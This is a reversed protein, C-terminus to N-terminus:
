TTKSSSFPSSNGKGATLCFTKVFACIKPWRRRPTSVVSRRTQCARAGVDPHFVDKLIVCSLLIFLREYYITTNFMNESMYFTKLFMRLFISIVFQYLRCRVAKMSM